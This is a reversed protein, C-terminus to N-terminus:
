REEEPTPNGLEVLVSFREGTLVQVSGSLARARTRINALGTGAGISTGSSAQLDSAAAPSGDASSIENSAKLCVRPGAVHLRLQLLTDPAHKAHNVLLERLTRQAASQVAPDLGDGPDGSQEFDIRQGAARYSEVLGATDALTSRLASSSGSHLMRVMATMEELGTVAEQRITQLAHEQETDRAAASSGGPETDRAAPLLAASLLAIASFRASLVDHMERALTTREATVTARHEVTLMQERAQAATELAAAREGEARALETATRVSEAWTMPTFVLFGSTLLALVPADARQTESFALAALSTSGIIGLVLTWRRLRPGGLLFISFISEFVLFYGGISGGLLLLAAALLQLLASLLVYRRRVLIAASGGLILMPWWPSLWEYGTQPSNVLGSLQLLATLLVYLLAAQPEQDSSALRTRLKAASIFSSM